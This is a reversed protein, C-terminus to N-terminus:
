VLRLKAAKASRRPKGKRLMRAPEAGGVEDGASKWVRSSGRERAAM